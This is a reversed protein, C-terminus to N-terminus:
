IVEEPTLELVCLKGSEVMKVRVDPVTKLEVQGGKLEKVEM